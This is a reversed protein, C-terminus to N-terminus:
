REDPVNGDRCYSVQYVLERNVKQGREVVDKQHTTVELRACGPKPLAQLRRVDIEIAATSGFKRQTYAAAVGVLVGQASGQEIARLLLPKIDAVQIRASPQAEVGRSAILALLTGTLLISLDNM